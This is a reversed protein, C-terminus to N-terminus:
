PQTIANADLTVATQAFARGLVSAGTNIEILTQCLLIGSFDSTTGLTAQGAVQWFVNDAQAGGSLTVTAGNGLNLDQGIQFIWVANSDGSLTVGNPITVGTGWKYLGPELTLGDINGAGLETFDPLTRGAADTYATEMASVASTLDTPTPEDYDSAHVEGTVLTSSTFTTPPASLGFGTIFSASAPSLGINGVVATAGTTSIASKALIVYDGAAGLSVPLHEVAGDSMDGQGVDNNAADNDSTGDDPTDNNTTGSDSTDNNTTGSDLTENNSTGNDDSDGCAAGFLSIVIYMSLTFFANTKM